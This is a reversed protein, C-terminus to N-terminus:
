TITLQSVELRADIKKVLGQLVKGPGCEVYSQIDNAAMHQIMQTWRIPSTLQAICHRKISEPDTSPLATVNQYIPCTPHSFPVEEIEKEFAQQASEMLPSHFGGAVQLPVVRKAGAELLFETAMQIGRKTGSIVLQGPCNYNAPVVLEQTIKSCIEQVAEDQMGLVAAMAGDTAQCAAQMAKARLAVVRLGEEFTLVGGVVIAAIEGLSHGAVVMPEDLTFLQALAVAHVFIAPQAIATQKLQEEPGDFMIRTLPIGLLQEATQFYAKAEPYQDYLDKGMGVYQSGQGPFLYAKM